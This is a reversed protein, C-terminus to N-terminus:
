SLIEVQDRYPKSKLFKQSSASIRLNFSSFSLRKGKENSESGINESVLDLM